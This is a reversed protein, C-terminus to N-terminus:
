GFLDGRKEIVRRDTERRVYSEFSEADTARDDPHTLAIATTNLLEEESYGTIDCLKANVRLFRRTAIETLAMGIDARDFMERLLTTAPINEFDPLKPPAM